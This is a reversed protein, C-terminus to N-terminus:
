RDAPSRVGLLGKQMVHLYTVTTRVDRHGLLGQVTRFDYGADLLDTAFCHRLLVDRYLVLAASPAQNQETSLPRRQEVLWSVFAERQQAASARSRAGPTRAPTARLSGRPRRLWAYRSWLSHVSRLLRAAPSASDRYRTARGAFRADM